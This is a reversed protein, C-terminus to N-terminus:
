SLMKLLGLNYEKKKVLNKRFGILDSSAEQPSNRSIKINLNNWSAM